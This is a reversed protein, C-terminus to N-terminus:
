FWAYNFFPDNGFVAASTRLVPLSESSQARMLYDVQMRDPSQKIMLTPPSRDFVRSVALAALLGLLQNVQVLYIVAALLLTRGATTDFPYLIEPRWCLYVLVVLGVVFYKM